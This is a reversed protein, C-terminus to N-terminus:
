RAHTYHLLPKHPTAFSVLSDPLVCFAVAEPKQVKLKSLATRFDTEGPAVGVEFVLNIGHKTFQDRIDKAWGAIAERQTYVVAVRSVKDKVMQAALSETLEETVTYIISSFKREAIIQRNFTVAFLPVENKDSLPALAATSAGAFVFISKLDRDRRLASYSTVANAGKLQDDEIVM